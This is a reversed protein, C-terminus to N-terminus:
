LLRCPMCFHVHLYSCVDILDSLSCVMDEAFLELKNNACDGLMGSALDGYDTIGLKRLDVQICGICVRCYVSNVQERCLLQFYM